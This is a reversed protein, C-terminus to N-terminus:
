PCLDAGDGPRVRIGRLIIKVSKASINDLKDAAFLTQGAGNALMINGTAAGLFVGAAEWPDIPIVIGAEIARRAVKVAEEMCARSLDALKRQLAPPSNAVVEPTAESFAMKFYESYQSSFDYYVKFFAVIADEVELREHPIQLLKDLLIATGEAVLNLFLDDKNRYDLYISKKSYGAKRAIMDMSTGRYGYKFFLDRAANYIRDKRPLLSKTPETAKTMM